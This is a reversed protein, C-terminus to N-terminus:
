RLYKKAADLLSKHSSAPADDNVAWTMLGALHNQKVYRAKEKVLKVNDYAIFQRTKKNYAWVASPFDNFFTMHEHFGSRLLRTITKYQVYGKPKINENFMPTKAPDYPQFLGNNKESVGGYALGYSPFGLIIKQTPVGLFTLYHISQDCSIHYYSKIMPENPDSYLNSNYGTMHPFYYPSHFDYCMDSIYNVNGSIIKWYSQKIQQDPEMDITIILNKGLKERLATVLQAYQQSITSTFIDPEFDLDVGDLHYYNIIVSVSNVFKHIHMVAYQFSKKDGGGGISIIKKLDDSKNQLKAFASFNGLKPQYQNNEDTCIKPNKKCFEHDSSSLDIASNNIHVIGEKDVHFFTYSIINLDNLKNRMNQNKVIKDSANFSGPVPYVLSSVAKSSQWYSMIIKGDDAQAFVPFLLILNSLIFLRIRRIFFM